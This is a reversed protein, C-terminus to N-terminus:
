FISLAIRGWRNVGAASGTATCAYLYTGAADFAIQGKMGASDSTTPATAVFIPINTGSLLNTFSGNGATSDRYSLGESSQTLSISPNGSVGDGNSVSIGNTSSITRAAAATASTRVIVGNAGLQHISLALGSLALSPSGLVGDGNTVAIGGSNGSSIERAAVTDAATRAVLGNSALQHFALAQGALSIQGM